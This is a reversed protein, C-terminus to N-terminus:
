TMTSVRRSSYGHNGEPRYQTIASATAIAKKTGNACKANPVLKSFPTIGCPVCGSRVRHQDTATAASKSETVFAPRVDTWLLDTVGTKAQEIKRTKQRSCSSDHRM